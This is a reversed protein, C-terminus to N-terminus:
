RRTNYAGYRVGLEGSLDDKAKNRILSIAGIEAGQGFLTGQPGKAVEIREM